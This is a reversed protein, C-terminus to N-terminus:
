FSFTSTLRFNIPNMIRISAPVDDGSKRTIILDDNNLVNRVNLQLRWEVKDDMIMRTHRTWLDLNAESPGYLPQTVDAVAIEDLGVPLRPDDTLFGNRFGVGM